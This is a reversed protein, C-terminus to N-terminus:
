RGSPAYELGEQELWLQLVRYSRRLYYRDAANLWGRDRDGDWEEDPLAIQREPNANYRGRAQTVIRQENDVAVTMVRRTSGEERVQVSWLSLKGLRSSYSASCHSMAEGENALARATALEQVSWELVRGTATDQDECYFYASRRRRMDFTTEPAPEDETWLAQWRGVQRLLKPLSRSKMSFHPEPPGEQVIHGGPGIAERPVFRRYHIYEVIPRVLSRDLDPHRALYHIVSGWFDEDDFSRGLRTTRIASVLEPDGRQGLIQGWRLAEEVTCDAPAQLFHHAMRKTLPLPVDATRINAGRGIHVFWGQQRRAEAGSGRFWVLDMFAPVDYRALLHRALSGFQAAESGRPARWLQPPRVWHGHWHALAILGDVLANGPRRGLATSGWATSLLDGRREVHLLLSELARRGDDDCNAFGQHIRRLLVTHLDEADVTGRRIQRILHRPNGMERKAAALAALAASRSKLDPSVASSM